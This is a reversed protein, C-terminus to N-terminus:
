RYFLLPLCLLITIVRLLLRVCTELSLELLELSIGAQKVQKGLCILLVGQSHLLICCRQESQGM